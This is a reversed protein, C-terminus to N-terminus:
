SKPFDLLINEALLRANVNRKLQGIGNEAIKLLNKAEGLSLPVSLIDILERQDINIMSEKDGAIYLM